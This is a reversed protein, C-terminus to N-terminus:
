GGVPMTHNGPTPRFQWGRAVAFQKLAHSKRIIQNRSLGAFSISAHEATLPQADENVDLGLGRCEAVTVAVVGFGACDAQREAAFRQWVDRASIRSSDYVSLLMGGSPNPRFVQSTIADGQAQVPFVIRYLLTEPNM